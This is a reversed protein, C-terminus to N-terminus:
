TSVNEAFRIGKNRVKMTVESMKVYIAYMLHLTALSQSSSKNENMACVIQLVFCPQWQHVEHCAVYVCDKCPM